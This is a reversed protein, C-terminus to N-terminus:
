QSLLTLTYKTKNPLFILIHMQRFPVAKTEGVNENVCVLVTLTKNKAFTTYVRQRMHSIYGDNCHYHLFYLYLSMIDCQSTQISQRSIVAIDTM